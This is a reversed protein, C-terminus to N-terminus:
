EQSFIVNYEGQEDVGWLTKPAAGRKYHSLSDWYNEFEQTDDDDVISVYSVYKRKREM